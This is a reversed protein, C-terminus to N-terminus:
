RTRTSVQTFLVVADRDTRNSWAHRTGRQILSDGARLTTEGDQLIAVIEGEIVYAIDVTQTLHMGESSHDDTHADAGSAAALAAEYDASGKWARDPHFIAKRVVLGLPPPELVVSGTSADDRRVDAPRAAITWIDAASFMPTVLTAQCAEDSSFHSRGQPDNATIVRRVRPATM